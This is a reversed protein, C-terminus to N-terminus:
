KWAMGTRIEATCMETADLQSQCSAPASTLLLQSDGAYLHFEIPERRMIDGRPLLYACFHIHGANLGPSRWFWSVSLQVIVGRSSSQNHGSPSTHNSRRWSQELPAWDLTYDPSSQGTCISYCLSVNRTTLPAVRRLATETSHYKKCASQLGKCFLALPIGSIVNFVMWYWETGNFWEITNWYSEYNLISNLVMSGHLSDLIDNWFGNPYLEFVM